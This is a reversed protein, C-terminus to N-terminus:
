SQPGNLAAILADAHIVAARSLDSETTNLFIRRDSCMAQMILGAFHERKTLGYSPGSQECFFPSAPDTPNSNM